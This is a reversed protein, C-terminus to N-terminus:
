SQDKIAALPDIAAPDPPARHFPCAWEEGVQRGSYQRAESITGHRALMPNISGALAEDRTLIATRLKEYRNQERLTEFQDHLNFIMVPHSFRRAPRSAHPHMGVVFFAEGGFSLSFHPDDPDTSVRPDPPQGRWGDKETLSQLRDWLHQEFQRESLDDPGDFIVAFSTFLTPQDHYAWAFQMLRDHIEVDNWASDIARARYTHLQGKGLASKAGVCPFQPDAIFEELEHELDSQMLMSFLM